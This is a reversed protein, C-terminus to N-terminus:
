RRHGFKGVNNNMKPMSDLSPRFISLMATVQTFSSKESAVSESKLISNVDSFGYLVIRYALSTVSSIRSVIKFFM